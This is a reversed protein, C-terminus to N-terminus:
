EGNLMAVATIQDVAPGQTFFMVGSSKSGLSLTLTLVVLVPLGVRTFMFLEWLLGGDISQRHIKSMYLPRLVYRTAPSIGVAYGRYLMPGDM